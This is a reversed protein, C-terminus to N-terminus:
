KDSPRSGASIVGRVPCSRIGAGIRTTYLAAACVSRDAVGLHEFGHQPSSTAICCTRINFQPREYAESKFVDIESPEGTQVRKSSKRRLNHRVRVSSLGGLDALQM